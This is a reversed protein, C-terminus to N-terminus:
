ECECVRKNILDLCESGVFVEAGLGFLSRVLALAVGSSGIMEHSGSLIAQRLGVGNQVDWLRESTFWSRSLLTFETSTFSYSPFVLTGLLAPAIDYRHLPSALPSTNCVTSGSMAPGWLRTEARWHRGHSSLAFACMLGVHRIVSVNRMYRQAPSSSNPQVQMLSIQYTVIGAGIVQQNGGGMAYTQADCEDLLLCPRILYFDM